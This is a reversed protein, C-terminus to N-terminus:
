KGCGKRQFRVVESSNMTGFYQSVVGYFRNFARDSCTEINIKAFYQCGRERGYSHITGALSGFINLDRFYFKGRGPLFEARPIERVKESNCSNPSMDVKM